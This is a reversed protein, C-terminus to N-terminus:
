REAVVVGGVLNSGAVASMHTIPFSLSLGNKTRMKRNNAKKQSKTFKEEGKNTKRPSNNDHRRKGKQAAKYLPIPKGSQIDLRM